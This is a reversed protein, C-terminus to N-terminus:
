WFTLGIAQSTMDGLEAVLRLRWVLRAMTEAM